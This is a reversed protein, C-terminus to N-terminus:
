KYVRAQVKDLRDLIRDVRDPKVMFEQFGEMGAKAMEAPADRDYFQALGAATSVTEFGEQIFKDDGVEAKSNPPLQGIIKNWEGQIEPQAMFALFKRADEKNKANSPIFLADAPAEEARALGPTIEPFPMYDIQDNTLGADKMAAVAFNGMVYMAAEGKAFPALADQWSMTAHNEVFSCEDLMQKWNTFVQKVKPDTYKVQGATLQNHFDYGNTRLNLYDFVGAATWLFKTGITFPTVGAEKLKGCAAMLEDWTKPEETIGAKEFIDKRYYIGWQYYSYPVGWQKGNMTMTPKIAEFSTSLNPDSAWMDSIDEFQGANVFPAMRNGPYWATIDPAEASLFNRIATKHAERDTINLTVNVDPNAAKFKEVVMEIGQKPAPNPDDFNIVLDGAIATTAFLTSACLALGVKGFTINM